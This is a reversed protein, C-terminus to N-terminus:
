TVLYDLLPAHLNPLIQLFFRLVSSSKGGWQFRPDSFLFQAFISSLLKRGM